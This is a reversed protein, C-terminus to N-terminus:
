LGIKLRASPASNLVCWFGGQLLPYTISIHMDTQLQCQWPLTPFMSSGAVAACTFTPVACCWARLHHTLKIPSPYKMGEKGVESQFEPSALHVSAYKM